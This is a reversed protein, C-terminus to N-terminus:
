SKSNSGLQPKLWGLPMTTEHALSIVVEFWVYTAHCAITRLYDYDIRDFFCLFSPFGTRQFQPLPIFPVSATLIIAYLVVCVYVHILYAVPTILRFWCSPRARGGHEVLVYNIMSARYIYIMLPGLRAVQVVVIPGIEPGM